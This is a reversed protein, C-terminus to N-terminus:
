VNKVLLCIFDKVLNESKEAKKVAAEDPKVEPVEANDKDSKKVKSLIVIGSIIASVGLIIRLKKDM